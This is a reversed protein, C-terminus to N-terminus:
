APPSIQSEESNSSTKEVSPEPQPLSVPSSVAEASERREVVEEIITRPVEKRPQLYLSILHNPVFYENLGLKRLTSEREALTYSIMSEGHVNHTFPDAMNLIGDHVLRQFSGSYPIEEVPGDLPWLGLWIPNEPAVYIKQPARQARTEQANTSGRSIAFTLNMLKILKEISPKGQLTKDLVYFEEFIGM